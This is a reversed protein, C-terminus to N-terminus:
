NDVASVLIDRLAVNSFSSRILERIDVRLSAKTDLLRPYSCAFTSSSLSTRRISSVLRSSTRRPHSPVGLDSHCSQPHATTVLEVVWLLIESEFNRISLSQRLSSLIVFASETESAERTRGHTREQGMRSKSGRRAVSGISTM